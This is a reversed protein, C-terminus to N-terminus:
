RTPAARAPLAQADDARGIKEISAYGAGPSGACRCTPISRRPGSSSPRSRATSSRTRRGAGAHGARGGGGLGALPRVPRDARGARRLTDRSIAIRRTRTATCDRKARRAAARATAGTTSRWCTSAWPACAPTTTPGGPRPSTAPTATASSCGAARPGAPRAIVWAVLTSATPPRIEVREPALGARGAAADADRSPGPAYICGPNPCRLLLLLRSM